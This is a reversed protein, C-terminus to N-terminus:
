EPLIFHKTCTQYTIPQKTRRMTDFIHLRPAGDLKNVDRQDSSFMGINEAGAAPVAAIEQAQADFSAAIKRATIEQYQVHRTSKHPASPNGWAPPFFLSVAISVTLCFQTILLARSRSQPSDTSVHRCFCDRQGLAEDEVDGDHGHTTTM